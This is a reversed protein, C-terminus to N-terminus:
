AFSAHLRTSCRDKRTWTLSANLQGRAARLERLWPRCEHMLTADPPTHIVQLRITLVLLRKRKEDGDLIFARRRIARLREIVTRSCEIHRKMARSLRNREITAVKLRMGRTRTCALRM